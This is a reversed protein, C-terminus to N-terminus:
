SEAYYHAGTTIERKLFTDKLFDVSNATPGSATAQAMEKLVQLCMTTNSIKEVIHEPSKNFLEHNLQKSPKPLPTSPQYTCQKPYLPQVLNTVNSDSYLVKPLPKQLSKCAKTINDNDAAHQLKRSISKTTPPEASPAKTPVRLANKYLMDINGQRFLTLRAQLNKEFNEDEFATPPACLIAEIFIM